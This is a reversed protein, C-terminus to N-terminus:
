YDGIILMLVLVYIFGYSFSWFIRFGLEVDILSIFYIPAVFLVAALCFILIALIVDIGKDSM